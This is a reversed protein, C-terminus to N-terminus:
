DFTLSSDASFLYGDYKQIIKAIIIKVEIDDLPEYVEGMHCNDFVTSELIILLAKLYDTYNDGNIDNESIMFKIIDVVSNITTKMEYTKIIDEAYKTCEQLLNSENLHSLSKFQIPSKYKQRVIGNSPVIHKIKKERAFALVEDYLERATIREVPDSAMMRIIWERYKDVYSFNHPNNKIFMLLCEHFRKANIVNKFYAYESKDVDKKKFEDLRVDSEEFPRACIHKYFPTTAVLEALIIGIAYMDISEDYYAREDRMYAMWIEPARHSWTAVRQDLLELNTRKRYAHSFDIIVARDQASMLINGPKLDRHIIGNDHMFTLASTIDLMFQIVESDRYMNRGSLVVAHKPLEVEYYRTEDKKVIRVSRYKIINETLYPWLFVHVAHERLWSLNDFDVYKKAIKHYLDVHGAGGKERGIIKEDAM